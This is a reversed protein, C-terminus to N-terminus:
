ALVERIRESLQAMTFPKEIFTADPPLSAREILTEQLLGSMYLVNTVYRKPM